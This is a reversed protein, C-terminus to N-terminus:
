ASVTFYTRWRWCGRGVTIVTPLHARRRRCCGRLGGTGASSCRPGAPDADGQVSVMAPHTLAPSRRRLPPPAHATPIHTPEPQSLSRRGALTPNPRRKKPFQNNLPSNLANPPAIDIAQSKTGAHLKTNQVHMYQVSKHRGVEYMYLDQQNHIPSTCTPV